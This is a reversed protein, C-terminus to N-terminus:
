LEGSSITRNHDVLFQSYFVVVVVRPFYMTHNIYLNGTFVNQYSCLLADVVSSWLLCLCM